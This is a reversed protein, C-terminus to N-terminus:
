TSPTSPAPKKELLKELAKHAAGISIGFNFLAYAFLIYALIWISDTVNRYVSGLNTYVNTFIAFLIDSILTLFFSIFLTMWIRSLTGGKFEWALVLLLMSAVVLVLDVVGYSIAIANTLLPEKPNYAMFIGFYLVIGIMLISSVIIMFVLSKSLAKWNIGALWIERIFAFGFLPYAMLYCIDALSPFPDIHLVYEYYTWISEGMLWCFMGATFLLLTSSKSGHTGYKYLSYAGGGVSLVLSSLVFFYQLIIKTQSAPMVWYVLMAAIYFISFLILNLKENNM